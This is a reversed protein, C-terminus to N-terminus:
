HRFMTALTEKHVALLEKEADTVIVQVQIILNGRGGGPRRPMGEGPMLITDGNMAGQGVKVLLGELHGPHGRITRVCGLLSDTFSISVRTMLDSDKREIRAQELEYDEDAEQLIIHVDGAEIYDPNDSCENAFM